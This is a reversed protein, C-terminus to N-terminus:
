FDSKCNNCHWQKTTKGLAFIGWLAVSGAKSLGSIKQTNTSQCYPCTISSTSNHVIRSNVVSYDNPVSGRTDIHDIINKADLLSLNPILERLEKIADLKQQKNVKPIINSLDYDKGGITITNNPRTTTTNGNQCENPCGCHPCAVAKDSIERNCEICKILAM